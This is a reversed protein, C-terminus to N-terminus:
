ATSKGIIRHIEVNVKRYSVIDCSNNSPDVRVNVCCTYVDRIPKEISIKIHNHEQKESKKTFKEIRGNAKTYLVVQGCSIVLVLLFLFFIMDGFKKRQLSM